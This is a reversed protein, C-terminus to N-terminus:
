KFLPTFYRAMVYLRLLVFVADVFSLSPPPPCLPHNLCVATEEDVGGQVRSVSVGLVRYLLVRGFTRLYRFLCLSTVGLLGCSSPWVHSSSKCGFLPVQRIIVKFESSM